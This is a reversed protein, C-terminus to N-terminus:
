KPIHLPLMARLQRKGAARARAETTLPYAGSVEGTAKDFLVLGSKGLLARAAATPESEEMAKRSLPGGQKLWRQPLRRHLARGDNGSAVLMGTLPLIAHLRAVARDDRSGGLLAEYAEM